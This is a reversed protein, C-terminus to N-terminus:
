LATANPWHSQRPGRGIGGAWKLFWFPDCVSRLTRSRIRSILYNTCTDKNQASSSVVKTKLEKNEIIKFLFVVCRQHGHPHCEDNIDVLASLLALETSQGPIQMVSNKPNESRLKQCFCYGVSSEHGEYQGIRFRNVVM